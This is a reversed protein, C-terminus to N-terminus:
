TQQKRATRACKWFSIMFPKDQRSNEALHKLVLCATTGFFRSKDRLSKKQSISIQCFNPVVKFLWNMRRKWSTIWCYKLCEVFKKKRLVLNPLLFQWFELTILLLTPKPSTISCRLSICIRTKLLISAFISSSHTFLEWYKIQLLNASSLKLNNFWSHQIKM